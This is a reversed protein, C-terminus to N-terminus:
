RGWTFGLQLFTTGTTVSVNDITSGTLADNVNTTGDFLNKEARHTVKWFIQNKRNFTFQKGIWLGVTDTKNDTGSRILTAAKNEEHTQRPQLEFGLLWASTNSHPFTAELSVRVGKTRINTRLVADSPIHLQYESFDIGFNISPSRRSYGFFSRFRLGADFWQHDVDLRSSGSPDARLETALSKIYNTNLGFFPTIWLKIGAQIAASSSFYSRQWFPSGSNQYIYTPGFYIELVNRRIDNAHLLATYEDIRRSNGGLVTDQVVESLAKNEDVQSDDVTIPQSSSELLSTPPPSQDPRAEYKKEEPKQPLEAPTPRSSNPRETRPRVTYRNSDYDRDQSNRGKLLLM